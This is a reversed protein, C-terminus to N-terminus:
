GPLVAVSGLAWATRAPLRIHRSVEAGILILGVLPLYMRREVQADNIPVISSTPALVILFLFWGFCAVPYRRRLYFAVATVATLVTLRM